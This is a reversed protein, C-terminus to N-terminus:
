NGTNMGSRMGWGNFDGALYVIPATGVTETEETRPLFFYIQGERTIFYGSENGFSQDAVRKLQIQLGGSMRVPPPQKAKWDHDLECVGSTPTDMWAQVIRNPRHSM